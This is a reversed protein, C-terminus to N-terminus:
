PFAGVALMLGPRFPLPRDITVPGEPTGLVYRTPTLDTDVSPGFRLEVHQRLRVRVMVSGHLGAYRLTRARGASVQDDSSEPTLRVIDMGAALVSLLALRQTIQMGLTPGARLSFTLLSAGAGRKELRVPDMRAHAWLGVPTLRAFAAHVYAGAGLSLKTGPGRLTGAALGGGSWAHSPKELPKPPPLQLQSLAEDRSIGISAGSALAQIASQVVEGVEAHDLAPQQSRRLSRIYIREDSGDVIYVLSRQDSTLDIWIHCLLTPSASGTRIAHAPDVNPVRELETRVGPLDLAGELAVRWSAHEVESVAYTVQVQSQAQVGSSLLWLGCCMWLGAWHWRGFWSTM